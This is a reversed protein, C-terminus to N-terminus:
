YNSSAITCCVIKNAGGAKLTKVCEKLTSGTTIIDDCLIFNKNNIEQGPRESFVGLLNKNRENADLEHQNFTERTKILVDKVPIKLVDGLADALLESQNYGRNVMNKESMPVFCIYDIDSIDMTELIKEAIASAFFEVNSRVSHFKLNLIAKRIGGVYLFPSICEFYKEDGFYSIRRIIQAMSFTKICNECMNKNYEIVEDCLICRKPFICSILFDKISM